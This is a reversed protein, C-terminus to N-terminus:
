KDTGPVWSSYKYELKRPHLYKRTLVDNSLHQRNYYQLTSAKKLKETAETCNMKQKKSNLQIKEM